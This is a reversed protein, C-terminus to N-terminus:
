ELERHGLYRRRFAVCPTRDLQETLRVHVVKSLQHYELVRFAQRIGNARDFYLAGEAFDIDPPGLRIIAADLSELGATLSELRQREEESISAWHPEVQALRVQFKADDFWRIRASTTSDLPYCSYLPYDEMHRLFAIEILGPFGVVDGWVGFPARAIITMTVDDGIAIQQKLANWRDLNDRATVNPCREHVRTDWDPDIM